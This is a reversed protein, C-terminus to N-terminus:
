AWQLKGDVVYIVSEAGDYEEVYYDTCDEPLEVVKLEAYTGNVDEGAEIASILKANYRLEESDYADVGLREAWEKSVSFGGYCTNIILKM